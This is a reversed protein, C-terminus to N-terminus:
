SVSAPASFHMTKHHYNSSKNYAECIYNTYNWVINISRYYIPPTHPNMISVWGVWILGWFDSSHLFYCLYFLKWTKSLVARTLGKLNRGIVKSKTNRWLASGKLKFTKRIHLQPNISHQYFPFDLHFTSLWPPMFTYNAGNLIANQLEKRQCPSFYFFQCIGILMREEATVHWM